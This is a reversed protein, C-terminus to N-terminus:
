NLSEPCLDAQMEDKIKDFVLTETKSRNGKRALWRAAEDLDVRHLWSYLPRNHTPCQSIFAHAARMEEFGEPCVTPDEMQAMWVYRCDACHLPQVRFARYHEVAGRM